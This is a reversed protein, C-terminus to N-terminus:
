RRPSCRARRGRCASRCGAPRADDHRLGADDGADIHLRDAGERRVRVGGLQPHLVEIRVFALEAPELAVAVRDAEVIEGLVALDRCSAARCAAAPRQRHPRRRGSARRAPRRGFFRDALLQSETTPALTWYPESISRAAARPRRKEIRRYAPAIVSRLREWGVSPMAAPRRAASGRLQRNGVCPEADRGEEDEGSM